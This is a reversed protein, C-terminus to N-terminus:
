GSMGVSGDYMGAWPRSGSRNSSFVERCGGPINPLGKSSYVSHYYHTKLGLDDM